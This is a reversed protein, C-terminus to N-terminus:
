KIPYACYVEDGNVDFVTYHFYYPAQKQHEDACIQAEAFSNFNGVTLHDIHGYFIDCEEVLYNFGKDPMTFKFLNNNKQTM